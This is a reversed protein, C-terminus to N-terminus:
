QSRAVLPQMIVFPIRAAAVPESQIKGNRKLFILSPGGHNNRKVREERGISVNKAGAPIGARGIQRDDAFRARHDQGLSAGAPKVVHSAIITRVYEWIIIGPEAIGAFDTLDFKEEVFREGMRWGFCKVAQDLEPAAVGAWAKWM